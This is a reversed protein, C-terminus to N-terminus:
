PGLKNTPVVAVNGGPRTNSTPSLTRLLRSQEALRAHEAAAARLRARLEVELPSNAPAVATKFEFVGRVELRIVDTAVGAVCLVGPAEETSDATGVITKYWPLPGALTKPPVHCWDTRVTDYPVPGRFVSPLLEMVQQTTSPLTDQVGGVFGAAQYSSIGGAVLAPVHLRFSLAKLRFHAWNDAELPCRTGFNAPYCAFNFVGGGNLAQEIIVHFPMRESDSNQNRKPM